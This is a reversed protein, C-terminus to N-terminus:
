PVKYKKWLAQLAGAERMRDLLANIETVSPRIGRRVIITHAYIQDRRQSVLLTTRLQPKDALYVALFAETVVAVDGRGLQLLTLTAENDESFVMQFKSRLFEADNNFGAFGYHYGRMGIMRKESLESFFSEDRGPGALAVYVESGGLYVQSADVSRNQWGWALNDYLSLDYKGQDFDHFRRVPGTIVSEFRYTSQFANMLDLLDVRLKETHAQKAIYPPFLSVGVKVTQAALCHSGTALLLAALSARIAYPM